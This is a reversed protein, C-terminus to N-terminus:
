DHEVGIIDHHFITIGDSLDRIRSKADVFSQLTQDDGEFTDLINGEVDCIFVIGSFYYVWHGLYAYHKIM